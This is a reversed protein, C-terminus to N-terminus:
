IKLVWDCVCNWMILKSNKCKKCWWHMYTAYFEEHKIVHYFLSGTYTFDESLHQVATTRTKMEQWQKSLTQWITDFHEQSFNSKYPCNKGVFFLMEEKAAFYIKDAMKQLLHNLLRQAKVLASFHAHLLAGKYMDACQTRLEDQQQM